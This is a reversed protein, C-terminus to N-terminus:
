DLSSVYALFEGRLEYDNIEPAILDGNNSDNVSGDKHVICLTDNPTNNYNDQWQPYERLQGLTVEKTWESM